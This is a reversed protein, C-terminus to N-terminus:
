HRITFLLPTYLLLAATDVLDCLSRIRYGYEINQRARLEKLNDFSMQWHMSFALKWRRHRQGHEDFTYSTYVGKRWSVVAESYCGEGSKARIAACDASFEVVRAQVKGPKEGM